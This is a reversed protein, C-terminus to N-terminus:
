VDLREDRAALAQNLPRVQCRPAATVWAGSKVMGSWYRFGTDRRWNRPFTVKTLKVLETQRWCHEKNPRAKAETSRRRPGQGFLGREDTDADVGLGVGPRGYVAKSPLHSPGWVVPVIQPGRTGAELRYPLRVVDVDRRGSVNELRAGVHDMGGGNRHDVSGALNAGIHGPREECGAQGAAGAGQELRVPSFDRRM